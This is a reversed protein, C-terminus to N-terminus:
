PREINGRATEVYPELRRWLRDWDPHYASPTAKMCDVREVYWYYRLQEPDYKALVMPLNHIHDAEIACRDAERNWGLVRITLIGTQLIELLIEAIEPPCNM